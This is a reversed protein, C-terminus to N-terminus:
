GLGSEWESIWIKISDIDDLNSIIEDIKKKAQRKAVKGGYADERYKEQDEVMKIFVQKDIRLSCDFHSEHVKEIIDYHNEIERLNWWAPEIEVKKGDKTKAVIKLDFAM